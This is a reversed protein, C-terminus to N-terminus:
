CLQTSSKNEVCSSTFNAFSVLNSEMGEGIILKITLTSCLKANIEHVLQMQANYICVVIHSFFWRFTVTHMQKVNYQEGKTALKQGKEVVALSSFLGRLIGRYIHICSVPSQTVSNIKLLVAVISSFIERLIARVCM